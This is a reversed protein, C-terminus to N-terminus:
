KASRYWTSVDSLVGRDVDARAATGQAETLRKGRMHCRDCRVGPLAFPGAPISAPVFTATPYLAPDAVEAICVTMGNADSKRLVLKDPLPVAHAQGADDLVILDGYFADAGRVVGLPRTAITFGSGRAHFNTTPSAKAARGPGDADSGIWAALATTSADGLAALAGQDFALRKVLKRARTRLQELETETPATGEPGAPQACRALALAANQLVARAFPSPMPENAVLAADLDAVDKKTLPLGAACVVGSANYSRSKSLILSAASTHTAAQSAPAAAPAFSSCDYNVPNAAHWPDQSAEPAPPAEASAVASPSPAAPPAVDSKAGRRLAFVAGLLGLIVVVVALL